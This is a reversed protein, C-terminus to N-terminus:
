IVIVVKIYMIDDGLVINMSGCTWQLSPFCDYLSVIACARETASRAPMVAINSMGFVSGGIRVFDCASSLIERSRFLM